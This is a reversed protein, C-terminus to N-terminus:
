VHVFYTVHACEYGAHKVRCTSGFVCTRQALYQGQVCCRDRFRLMQPQDHDFYRISAGCKMACARNGEALKHHRVEPRNTSSTPAQRWGNVNYV